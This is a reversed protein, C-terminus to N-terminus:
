PTAGAKTAQDVINVESQPEDSREIAKKLDVVDQVTEGEYSAELDGIRSTYKLMIKV